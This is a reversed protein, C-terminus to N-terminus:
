CVYTCGILCIRFVKRDKSKLAINRKEEYTLSMDHISNTILMLGNEFENATIVDGKNNIYKIIYEYDEIVEGNVNVLDEFVPGDQNFDVPRKLRIQKPKFNCDQTSKAVTYSYKLSDNQKMGYGKIGSTTIFDGNKINGNIDCVWIGGCGSSNVLVRNVGDYQELVSQFTGHSCERKYHELEYVVGLITPDEKGDSLKITPIAGNMSPTQSMDLNYYKGTSSCIRGIFNDCECSEMIFCRYCGIFNPNIDNKNALIKAQIEGDYKFQLSCEDEVNEIEWKKNGQNNISLNGGVIEAGDMHFTTEFYTTM